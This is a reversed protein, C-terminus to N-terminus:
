KGSEAYGGIIITQDGVSLSGHYHRGKNLNDLQRWQNDKFEAVVSKTHYGGIIYAADSTSATSYYAIYSFFLHSLIVFRNNPPDLLIIM